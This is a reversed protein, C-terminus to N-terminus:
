KKEQDKLEALLKQLVKIYEGKKTEDEEMELMGGVVARLGIVNKYARLYELFRQNLVERSRETVGFTRSLVNGSHTIGKVEILDAAMLKRIVAQVTSQSMGDGANVIQSSTLAQDSSYLIKLVELERQNIRM